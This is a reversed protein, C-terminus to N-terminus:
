ALTTVLALLRAQPEIVGSNDLDFANYVVRLFLGRDIGGGAGAAGTPKAIIAARWSGERARAMAVERKEKELEARKQQLTEESAALLEGRMKLLRGKRQEADTTGESKLSPNSNPATSHLDNTVLTNRIGPKKPPDPEPNPNPGPPHTPEEHVLSSVDSVMALLEKNELVRQNLEGVVCSM